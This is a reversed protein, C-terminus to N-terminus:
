LNDPAHRPHLPGSPSCLSGWLGDGVLSVLPESKDEHRRFRPFQVCWCGNGLGAADHPRLSKRAVPTRKGSVSRMGHDVVGRLPCPMPMSAVREFAGVWSRRLPIEIDHTLNGGPVCLEKDPPPFLHHASPVLSRASMCRKVIRFPSCSRCQARCLPSAGCSGILGNRRWIGLVGVVELTTEHSVDCIHPPLALEAGLLKDVDCHHATPLRGNSRHPCM